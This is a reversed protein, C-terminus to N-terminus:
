TKIKIGKLNIDDIGTKVARMDSEIAQLRATNNEIGSLHRLAAASDVKLIAMNSSISAAYETLPSMLKLSEAMQYTHGQIVTFRGNLENASDQSMSAFGKQSAERTAESGESLSIGTIKEMNEATAAANTIIDNYKQKLAAIEDQSLGDSAAAAFDEYFAQIPAELYDYKLSNLMADRMMGEWDDAFDAAARKGNKFGEVISDTISSSTTGTLIENWAEANEKLIKDIDAGQRELEVLRDYMQKTGGELLGSADLDKLEKFTLTTKKGQADLKNLIGEVAKYSSSKTDGFLGESLFDRLMGASVKDGLGYRKFIDKFIGDRDYGISKLENLIDSQNYFQVSGYEKHTVPKKGWFKQWGNPNDIYSGTVYEGKAQIEELLRDAEKQIESKQAKALEETAKIREKTLEINELQLRNQERLEETIKFEGLYVEANRDNLERTANELAQRYRAAQGFFQSIVNILSVILGIWDKSDLVKSIATSGDVAAKMASKVKEVVNAIQMYAQQVNQLFQGMNNLIQGVEDNGGNSFGQGLASLAQGVDGVVKAVRGMDSSEIKIQIIADQLSKLQGKADNLRTLIEPPIDILEGVGNKMKGSRVIETLENIMTGVDEKTLETIDKSLKKFIPSEDIQLKKLETNYTKQLLQLRRRYEEEGINTRDRELAHVQANHTKGLQQAKYYYDGAEDLLQKYAQREEEIKQKRLEIEKKVDNAQSKTLADSVWSFYKNESPSLGKEGMKFLRDYEAQLRETYSKFKGIESGYIEDPIQIGYGEKEFQRKLENYQDYIDKLGEIYRIQEKTAEDDAALGLAYNRAKEIEDKAAEYAKGTIKRKNSPNKNWDDIDKKIDDFYKNIKDAEGDVNSQFQIKFKGRGETIKDLIDSIGKLDHYAQKLARDGSKNPKASFSELIKDYEQIKKKLAQGSKGMADVDSLAELQSQADAKLDDYYKKNQTVKKDLAAHRKAENDTDIAIAEDIRKNEELLAKKEADLAINNFEAGPTANKTLRSFDFVQEYWPRNLREFIEKNKKVQERDIEQIRKYNEVKTDQYAKAKAERDLAAIYDNIAATAEGTKIAEITLQDLRGAAVEKIQRLANAQQADTANKNKIVGILSEIRVKQEDVSDNAENLKKNLRDQAEKAYDASSKFSRYAAILGVVAVVTLVIPNNLMTANLLAQAKQALDTAGAQLKQAVAVRLAALSLTKKATAGTTEAVVAVRTITIGQTTTLNQFQQANTATKIASALPGKAKMVAFEAIAVRNAIIASQNKAFNELIQKETVFQSGAAIANQRVIRAAELAALEEEQAILLLKEKLEVIRAQSKLGGAQIEATTNRAIILEREAAYRREIALDADRQAKRILTADGTAQASALESQALSAQIAAIQFAQQKQLVVAQARALARQTEAAATAKAANLEQQALNVQVTAMEAAARKNQALAVLEAKRASLVGVSAQLAAKEREYEARIELIKNNRAAISLRAEEQYRVGMSVVATAAKYAGYTVILVGLVKAIEKYHEVLLSAGEIADNFLGENSQGIENFMVSINDKLREIKGTLSASQKEMLNFFMGGESTMNKFAQEVQPFGVKGAEVLSNVEAVNVKLVKALEQYIPIGRGAFQRIDVAYARGQSRLTGYLYVLDGLPASVGASIDGIMKLEDIVTEAASGYALLQKAGQAADKLGFPTKAALDILESMLTDAKLRSQLMTGFAIELQQFEGRVKAINSILRTAHQATFFVAVSASLKKFVADMRNGEREVGRGINRITNLSQDADRRLQDNLLRIVYSISGNDNNM